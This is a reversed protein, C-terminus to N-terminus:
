SYASSTLLLIWPNFWVSLSHMKSCLVELRFGDNEVTQRTNINKHWWILLDQIGWQHCPKLLCIQKGTNGESTNVAEARSM